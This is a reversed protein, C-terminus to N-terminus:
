SRHQRYHRPVVAAAGRQVARPVQESVWRRMSDVLQTVWVRLVAPVLSADPPSGTADPHRRRRSLDAMSVSRRSLDHSPTDHKFFAAHRHALLAKSLTSWSNGRPVPYVGWLNGKWLMMGLTAVASAHQLSELVRAADLLRTKSIVHDATSFEAVLVARNGYTGHSLVQKWGIEIFDQVVAATPPILACGTSPAGRMDDDDHLSLYQDQVDGM